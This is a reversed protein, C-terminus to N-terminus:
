AVDAPSVELPLLWSGPRRVAERRSDRNQETHAKGSDRTGEGGKQMRGPPQPADHIGSEAEAKLCLRAQGRPPPNQRGRPRPASM